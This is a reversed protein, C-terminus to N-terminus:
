AITQASMLAVGEETFLVVVQLDRSVLVDYADPYIPTVYGQMIDVAILYSGM